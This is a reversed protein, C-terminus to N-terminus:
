SAPSPIPIGLNRLFVELSTALERRGTRRYGTLLEILKQAPTRSSPELEMARRFCAEARAELDAEGTVRHKELLIRGATSQAYGSAHDRELWTEVIRLAEDLDGDDALSAAYTRYAPGNDAYVPDLDVATKATQAAEEYRKLKRLISARTSLARKQAARGQSQSLDLARDAWRLATSFEGTDRAASARTRADSSNVVTTLLQELTLPPGSRREDQIREISIRATRATPSDDNARDLIERYVAEASDFDGVVRYAFGLRTRAALDTPDLSLVQVNVDIADAGRVGAHMLREAEARLENLESFRGDM